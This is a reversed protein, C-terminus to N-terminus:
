PNIRELLCRYTLRHREALSLAYARGDAPRRVIRYTREAPNEPVVTSVMSVTKENFSALEDIFTVWVSLVDLAAIREMIRGSLFVADQLTTSTFIENMIVISRPTCRGLIDNIRVLDDQLKGRLNGIQEEKEFHTFLADFLVLRAERGPVPCGLSALYHLQGFMRAFTTKGGQNPGSVVVREPGTLAFDNTVVPTNERILKFALAPDFGERSLVDKRDTVVQPYCAELGARRFGGVYDLYAVYFQIERDFATITGDQFDAHRACYADLAQFTDPYLRAVRDLVAAEVHNMDPGDLFKGRYDKAAGQKFREFTKEVVTSYDREDRYKRVNISSGRILLCYKVKSLDAELRRTEEVLTAFQDSAVHSALYDRFCSLGRSDLDADTLGRALSAVVDCYLEVADLVCREKQLRYYLKGAQVLRERVTRMGRAFAQVLEMVDQRELDWMVEHRYAVTAVDTLPRHFFPKLDYEDRGATIAAVVQDLNLDIFFEPAQAPGTASEGLISRFTETQAPPSTDLASQWGAATEVPKDRLASITPTM